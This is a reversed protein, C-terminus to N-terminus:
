RPHSRLLARATALFGLGMAAAIGIVFLIVTVLPGTLAASPELSFISRLPTLSTAELLYAFALRGLKEGWEAILVPDPVGPRSWGARLLMALAGAGTAAGCFVLATGLLAKVPQLRMARRRASRGLPHALIREMISPRFQAPPAALAMRGLHDLLQLHRAAERRCQVCDSLHVAIRGEEASGLGREVYEPLRPSIAACNATM